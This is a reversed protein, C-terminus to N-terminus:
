DLTCGVYENMPGCVDCEFQKILEKKLDLMDSEQGVIANNNIWSMMMVLRGEVWEIFLCPDANSQTTGVSKCSAVATELISGCSTQTWLSVEVVIHCERGPFAEQIRM